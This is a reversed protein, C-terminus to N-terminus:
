PSTARAWSNRGVKNGLAPAQDVAAYPAFDETGFLQRVEIEAEGGADRPAHKAM